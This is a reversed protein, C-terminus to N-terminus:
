ASRDVKANVDTLAVRAGERAFMRATAAGLGQAAGTILAIKGQLRGTM